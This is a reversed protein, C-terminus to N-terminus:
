ERLPQPLSSWCLQDALKTASSIVFDKGVIKDYGLYLAAEKINNWNHQTLILFQGYMYGLVYLRM